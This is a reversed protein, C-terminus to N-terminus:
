EVSMSFVEKIQFVNLFDTEINIAKSSSFFFRRVRVDEVFDERTQCYGRLREM